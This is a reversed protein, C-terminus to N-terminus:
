RKKSTGANLNAIDSPSQGIAFLGAEYKSTTTPRLRLAREMEKVFDKLERSAATASADVEIEVRTLRIPEARAGLRIESRDLAVEGARVTVLTKEPDAVQRNPILDFTQRRTCVEFIRRAEHSGLLARLRVGVPGRATLLTDGRDSKLLESIERWKRLNGAASSESILSKMTAECDGCSSERRTRLAYGAHYLRWDETDYYTDVLEKSYGEFVVFGLDTLKGSDERTGLWQEVQELGEAVDYQWEIEQRDTGVQLQGEREARGLTGILSDYLGRRM